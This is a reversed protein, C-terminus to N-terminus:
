SEKMALVRRGIDGAINAAADPNGKRQACRSLESWKREDLLWDSVKVSMQNPDDCFDGFGGGVVFDVNGEEQGPLFSTLMVPLGLSAAEAITGPGAKSVLVDAVVMYEAINNVFGLPEVNVEGLEVEFGQEEESNSLLDACDEEETKDTSTTIISRIDRSYLKGAVSSFTRVISFQNLTSPTTETGETAEVDQREEMDTLLQEEICSSSWTSNAVDSWDIRALRKRLKENRGCVVVLTSNVGRRRMHRYLSDIIKPLSGVGEGGGMVLITKIGTNDNLNLKRKMQSQYVKGSQSTRDGLARSLVAFDSRIPLGVISIREEPAKGRTIALTAIQESGVYLREILREKAGGFWGWHCTALDTIVTFMPIRRGYKISLKECALAPVSTFLPHVSIVVDPDIQQIIRRFTKEQFLKSAKDIVIESAPSNTIDYLFKWEQPNASLFKYAETIPYLTNPWLNEQSIVDLLRYTSGPFLTEFQRALAEASARHGGGTDSFLFLIRLCSTGAIAGNSEITM